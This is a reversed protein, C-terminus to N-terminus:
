GLVCILIYSFAYKWRKPSRFDLIFTYFLLTQYRLISYLIHDFLSILFFRDTPIGNAERYNLLDHEDENNERVM